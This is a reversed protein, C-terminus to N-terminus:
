LGQTRGDEGRESFITTRTLYDLEYAKANLKEYTVEISSMLKDWVDQDQSVPTNNNSNVHATELAEELLALQQLATTIGALTEGSVYQSVDFEEMSSEVNNITQGAPASIKPMSKADQEIIHVEVEYYSVVGGHGVIGLVDGDKFTLIESRVVGVDYEDGNKYVTSKSKGVQKGLVVDRGLHTATFILSDGFEFEVALRDGLVIIEEGGLTSAAPDSFGYTNNTTLEVGAKDTANEINLSSFKIIKKENTDGERPDLPSLNSARITAEYSM